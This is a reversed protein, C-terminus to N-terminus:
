PSRRCRGAMQRLRLCRLGLRQLVQRFFRIVRLRLRSTGTCGDGCCHMLDSNGAHKTRRCGCALTAGCSYCGLSPRSRLPLVALTAGCPYRRLPLAALTAGWVLAAGCPYSRLPLAVLTAGCPYSRLCPPPGVRMLLM